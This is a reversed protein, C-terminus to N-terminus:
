QLGTSQSLLSLGDNKHTRVEKKLTDVNQRLTPAQKELTDIDQQLQTLSGERETVTNKAAQVEVRLLSLREAALEYNRRVTDREKRLNALTAQMKAEIQDSNTMTATSATMKAPDTTTATTKM